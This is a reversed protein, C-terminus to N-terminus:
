SFNKVYNLHLLSGSFKVNKTLNLRRWLSENRTFCFKFISYFTWQGHIQPFMSSQIVFIVYLNCTEKAAAQIIERSCLKAEAGAIAGGGPGCLVAECTPLHQHQHTCHQIVLYTARLM